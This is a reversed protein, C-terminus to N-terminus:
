AVVADADASVIRNRGHQKAGYLAADARVLLRSVDEAAGAWQAMGASISMPINEEGHPLPASAVLERLREAVQLASAATLGPLLILFEEGGFRGVQDVERMHGRLLASLHKLALDGIPHGWQDNIRKFHDVDLMLVCFPEGGRRSRQVQAGLAEELARRNLLGTLGDHHSLHRLHNVLRTVVLLLLMAHLSLSLVVYAFGSGVNLGSDVIMEASVSGPVLLARLGRAAYAAGSFLLPLTMLVPWRLQLTDRAYRYLGLAISLGLAAQVGSLVGVRIAGAAPDLGIWSAVLAVAFALAHGRYALPRRIFLWIGRQLSMVALVISLNGAARLAESRFSDQTHLATVLFVFSLASLGAFGSWHRAPRAGDGISLSGILWLVAAVAQMLGSFVFAVDTPTLSSVM